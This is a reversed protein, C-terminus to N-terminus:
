SRDRPSPSTYLLCAKILVDIKPLCIMSAPLVLLLEDTEGSAADRICGATGSPLQEDLFKLELRNDTHISEALLSGDGNSCIVARDIGQKALSFLLHEIVPKGALPWLATTLRSALPCRGFDRSGALIIAKTVQKSCM